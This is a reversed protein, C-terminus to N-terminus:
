RISTHEPILCKGGEYYTCSRCLEIRREFNGAKIRNICGRLVEEFSTLEAEGFTFHVPSDPHRLFVVTGRVEAEGYVRHILWAYLALQPKYLEARERIEGGSVRETKYDLLNWKGAATRYLRDITGTLYDDEFVASVPLETRSEPSKLVETGFPSRVFNMVNGVIAAVRAERDVEEPMNGAYIVARASEEVEREAVPTSLDKLIRHTLSGELEGDGTEDLDQDIDPHRPLTNVEPLGLVYRLFYKTPCELFIRIQTASFFEGRARGTVPEILLEPWLESPAPNPKGAVTALRMEEPLRDPTAVSVRLPHMISGAKGGRDDWDIIRVPAEPLILDGSRLPEGGMGVADLVWRLSSRQRSAEPVRGSLVLLDRARTCAVYFIRKEEAERNSDSARKLVELFPTRITEGPKSPHPAAFAIGASADMYPPTDYRFKQDLFPLFAVPFELGKSGHVTMVQVCNEDLEPVAQGERPERETLIKLREVFDFLSHFGKGEFDRAIRLLKQVNAVHQGGFPLGSVIGHWGTQLMIHQVLFPIPLRNALELVRSLIGIARLLGTDKRGAAYRRAKAWLTPPRERSIEYLSADSISFFPSRLLAALAVDDERNLLFKFFSLFDLIEQTQYFGIGGSLVYPIKQGILARELEALHTRGRLLVAVDHFQLPRPTESRPDFVPYGSAALEAIRQAVMGCEIALSSASEESEPEAPVLLLEVRGEASNPRGRVLEEGGPEFPSRTGESPRFFVRNIFDLPGILLRFSEALSISSAGEGGGSAAEIALRTEDFIRVEANRFSFISQKPDGVIFLNGSKFDSILLRIIDFQLQDTDQYEDIMIFRFKAAVQKRIEERQLLDRVRIQLDDFDVQGFEDKRRSYSELTRRYVRLLVRVCRLLVAEGDAAAPDSVADLLAALGERHRALLAIDKESQPSGEVPEVVAKRLSGTSTFLLPSLERYWAVREEMSHLTGWRSLRAAAEGAKKGPSSFLLRGLAERWSPDELSDRVAAEVSTRHRALVEEDSHDESLCGGPRVMRDIVERKGLWAELYRFIRKRGLLRVTEEFEEAGRGGEEKTLFSELTERLVDHLLIERDVGEIVSFAADVGAEVPYERLLQACFSHITGINASSLEERARELIQMRGPTAEGKIRADIVEAIRRRLQGAANETFTIAVLRSIPEGTELLIEIFRRVLVTTKGAGANATVSLHSTYGLAKKQHETLM